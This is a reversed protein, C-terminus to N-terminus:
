GAVKKPQEADMRLRISRVIESNGSALTRAAEREVWALLDDPLRILFTTTAEKTKRAM